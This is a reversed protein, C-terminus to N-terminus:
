YPGDHGLKDGPRNAGPEPSKKQDRPQSFIKELDPHDPNINKNKIKCSCCSLVGYLTFIVLGTIFKGYILIKARYNKKPQPGM